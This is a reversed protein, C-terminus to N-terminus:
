AKPVEPTPVTRGRTLVWIMAGFSAIQLPWGLALKSAALLDVEGALYLPYQVAVRVACPLLLLWTLKSCLRVVAPDKHWATADGTVSGIMFGVVPWRALISILMAVTYGANYLIGPLFVNEAKGSKLAFFAGIGIGFLSNLVFQPTSKQALRVALLIVAAIVGIAVSLKLEKTIMWSVTFGVTPVAGELTGRVGGLAKSLQARVAAEVSIRAADDANMVAETV